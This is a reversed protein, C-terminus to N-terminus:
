SLRVGEPLILKELARERYPTVEVLPHGVLHCGLAMLWVADAKDDDDTTLVKGTKSTKRIEWSPLDRKAAVIVERKNANGMGTAYLKVTSPPAALVPVGDALLRVVEWWLYCRESNVKTGSTPLGEIAVLVPPRQEFLAGRNTALDNIRRALVKLRAARGDLPLSVSTLGAEGTTAITRDPWALATATLSLDLGVVHPPTDITTV